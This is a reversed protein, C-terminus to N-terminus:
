GLLKGCCGGDAVRGVARAATCIGLWGPATGLAAMGCIGDTVPWRWVAAGDRCPGSFTHPEAKKLSM